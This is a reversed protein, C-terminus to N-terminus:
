ASGACVQADELVGVAHPGRVVEVREGPLGDLAPRAQEDRVLEDARVDSGLRRVGGAAGRVHRESAGGREEAMGPDLGVEGLPCLVIERRQTGRDRSVLPQPGRDVTAVHDPHLM